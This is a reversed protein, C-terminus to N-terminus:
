ADKWYVGELLKDSSPFDENQGITWFQEVESTVKIEIDDWDTQGPNESEIFRKLLDIPDRTSWKELDEMRNKGVDLDADFGVHSYIRYTHAEIFAPKRMKRVYGIADKACETIEILDNGDVQYNKVGASEAFRSISTSNQREDIHMHSSFLNNECVFLIPANFKAAFNLSEHFAGEESAGDGFYSVSIQDGERELALAAGVAISITGAVIPMSGMFGNDRGKIHMSGGKGGSCGSQKGLIESILAQPSCGLSLYNAHSRHNGLVHDDNRLFSSVGVAIAEQGIALHVPTRFTGKKSERGISLEVHRILLLQKYKDLLDIDVNARISRSNTM